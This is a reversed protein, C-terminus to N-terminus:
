GPRSGPSANEEAVESFASRWIHLKVADNLTKKKGRAMERQAELHSVEDDPRCRRGFASFAVRPPAELLKERAERGMGRGAFKLADAELAEWFRHRTWALAM